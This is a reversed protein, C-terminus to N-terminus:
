EGIEDLDIGVFTTGKELVYNGVDSWSGGGGTVKIGVRDGALNGDKKFSYVKECCNDGQEDYQKAFNLDKQVLIKGENDINWIKVKAMGVYGGVDGYVVDIKWKKSKAESIQAGISPALLLVAGLVAVLSVVTLKTKNM